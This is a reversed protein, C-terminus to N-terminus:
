AQIFYLYNCYACGCSVCKDSCLVTHIKCTYVAKTHTFWFRPFGLVWNVHMLATHAHPGECEGTQVVCHRCTDPVSHTTCTGSIHPQWSRTTYLTQFPCGHICWPFDFARPGMIMSVSGEQRCNSSVNVRESTLGTPGCCSWHAGHWEEQVHMRQVSMICTDLELFHM